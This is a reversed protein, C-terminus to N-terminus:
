PALDDAPVMGLLTQPTVYLIERAIELAETQTYQGQSVRRALVPALEKRVMQAKAYALELSYADSFFGVQKNVPLMDLREDMIQQVISPFFNHWWYGAVSFNPLERVMTCLSQNAHRSSLFCQFQVRPHRAIIEAAQAITRQSIRSATEFPLPEAGLSFQFVLDSDRSELEQLFAELLYSAYVDRDAETAQPRRQLAASMEEDSILRYDLDTSLHQATSLVQDFPILDCYHGLAERVDATTKIERAVPPRSGLTVPLPQAPATQGWTAELEYLPIDNVGWQARAFFAWELAYQLLDDAHGDGRRVIETCARHIGARRMIERPWAPDASRRRIVADLERWNEATIPEHWGYLDGLIVRLTWSCSTNRILPAYPLAEELRRTAEEETPEDSLRAGSPCGAAYLDSIVMHHLFLDHLGRASLHGGVLHTHADLLPVENLGEELAAVLSDYTM